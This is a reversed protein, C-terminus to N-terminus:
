RVPSWIPAVTAKRQRWSHCAAAIGPHTDRLYQLVRVVLGVQGWEALKRSCMLVAPTLVLIAAFGRLWIDVFAPVEGSPTIGIVRLAFTALLAPFLPAIAAAALFALTSKEGSLWSSKGGLARLTWFALAHSVLFLPTLLVAAQWGQFLAFAALFVIQSWWFGRWGFVLTLAFLIAPKYAITLPALRRWMSGDVVGFIAAGVIM